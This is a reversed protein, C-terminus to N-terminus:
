QTVHLVHLLLEQELLLLFALVVDRVERVVHQPLLMLHKRMQLLALRQLQLLLPLSHLLRPM